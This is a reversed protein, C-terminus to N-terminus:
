LNYNISERITRNRVVRKWLQRLSVGLLFGITGFLITNPLVHIAAWIPAFVVDSNLPTLLETSPGPVTFVYMSYTPTTALLLSTLYGSNYYAHIAAFGVIVILGKTFVLEPSLDNGTQILLVHQLGFGWDPFKEYPILHIALNYASIVLLLGM